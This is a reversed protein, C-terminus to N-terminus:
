CSIYTIHYSYLSGNSQKPHFLCNHSILRLRLLADTKSSSSNIYLVDSCCFLLEFGKVRLFGKCLTLCTISGKGRFVLTKLLSKKTCYIIGFFSSYSDLCDQTSTFNTLRYELVQYGILSQGLVVLRRNCTSKNYLFLFAHEINLLKFLQRNKQM